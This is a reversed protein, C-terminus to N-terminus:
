SKKRVPAAALEGRQRLERARAIDARAQGDHSLSKQIERLSARLGFPAKLAIRYFVWTGERRDQVISAQKLHVVHRSAKSQTTDLIRELDGVSLEGESLLLNVIRLRTPDGLAKHVQALKEFM